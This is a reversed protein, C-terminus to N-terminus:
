TLYEISLIRGIICLNGGVLDKAELNEGNVAIIRNGCAIKVCENKIDAVETCNEVQVLDDNWLSIRLIGASEPPFGCKKVTETKM